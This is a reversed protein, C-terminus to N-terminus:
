PTPNEPESLRQYSQIIELSSQLDSEVCREVGADGFLTLVQRGPPTLHAELYAKETRDRNTGTFDSRMATIFAIVPPSSALVRLQRSIQPNLEAMTEFGSQTVLCVDTKGFFVPLVTSAVTGNTNISQLLAKSPGLGAEALTVELWMAALGTQRNECRLLSRGRLQGLDTIGSDDRVLLVFTETTQGGQRAVFVLDLPVQQRIQFYEQVQLGLAKNEGRLAAALLEEVDDFVRAEVVIDFGASRAYATAYTQYAVVAETRNIQGLSAKTMAVDLFFPETNVPLPDASATAFAALVALCARLPLHLHPLNMLPM